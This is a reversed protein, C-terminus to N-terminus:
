DPRSGDVDGIVRLDLVATHDLFDVIDQQVHRCSGKAEAGNCCSLDHFVHCLLPRSRNKTIPLNRIRKRYAKKHFPCLFRRLSPCPLHPHHLSHVTTLSSPYPFIQHTPHGHCKRTPSLINPASGFHHQFSNHFCLNSDRLSTSESAESTYSHVIEM